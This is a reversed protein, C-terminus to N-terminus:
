APKAKKCLDETLERSRQACAKAGKILGDSVGTEDFTEIAKQTTGNPTTVQRRLNEPNDGSQVLLKGAGLCTQAALARAREPSLGEAIGAKIMAEAVYFLYAPGSGSVAIVADIENEAVEVLLADAFINKVWTMAEKTARPGATASVAGCNVKLPTNPMIRIIQGKQNLCTDIFDCNIGAAVSIIVTEPSIKDAIEELVQDIIFPKVAVMIRPCALVQENTTVFKVGMDEWVARRNESPDCAIIEGAPIAGSNIAGRIIAEAMNGAGIIGLQYQM